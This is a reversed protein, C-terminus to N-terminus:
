ENTKITVKANEEEIQKIITECAFIAGNLQEFSVRVHDRQEIFKALQNKLNDLM